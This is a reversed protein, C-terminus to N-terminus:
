DRTPKPPRTPAPTGLRKLTEKLPSEALREAVEALKARPMPERPVVPRRPQSTTVQVEIRIATLEQDRSTKPHTRVGRM